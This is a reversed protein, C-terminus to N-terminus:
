RRKCKVVRGLTSHLRAWAQMIDSSFNPIGDDVDYEQDIANVLGEAARILTVLARNEEMM